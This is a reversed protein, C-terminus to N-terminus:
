AMVKILHDYERNIEQITNNDGDANDPHYIKILDKYRKKLSKKNGVGIFFMEGRVVSGEREVPKESQAEFIKVKEHFQKMREFKEREEALKILEEELIKFKMEFLQDQQQIRREELEIKRKFEEREHKLEQRQRQIENLEEEMEITM